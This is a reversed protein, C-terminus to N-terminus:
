KGFRTGVIDGPPLETENRGFTVADAEAVMDCHGSLPDAACAGRATGRKATKRPLRPRGAPLTALFDRGCATQQRLRIPLGAGLIAARAFREWLYGNYRPQTNLVRDPYTGDGQEIPEIRDRSRARWDFQWPGPRPAACKRPGGGHSDIWRFGPPRGFAYHSRRHQARGRSSMHRGAYLCMRGPGCVPSQCCASVFRVGRASLADINPAHRTKHGACSLDDWRLQDGALLINRNVAARDANRGCKVATRDTNFIARQDAPARVKSGNKDDFGSFGRLRGVVDQRIQRPYAGKRDCHDDVRM